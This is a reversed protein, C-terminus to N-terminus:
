LIINKKKDIIGYDRLIQMKEEYNPALELLATIEEIQAKIKAKETKITNIIEKRKDLTEQTFELVNSNIVLRVNESNLMEKIAEETEKILLTVPDNNELDELQKNYKIEIEKEKKDKYIELIKLMNNGEKNETEYKKLKYDEYYPKVYISRDMSNYYIQYHSSDKCERKIIVKEIGIKKMAENFEDIFKNKIIREIREFIYQEVIITEPQIQKATKLVDIFNLYLDYNRLTDNIDDLSKPNWEKM